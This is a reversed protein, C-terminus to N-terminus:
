NGLSLSHIWFGVIYMSNVSLYNKIKSIQFSHQWASGCPMNVQWELTMHKDLGTGINVIKDVAKVFFVDMIWMHTALVKQLNNKNVMIIFDTKDDNLKLDNHAM